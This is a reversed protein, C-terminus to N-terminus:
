KPHDLHQHLFDFTGKAHIEHGGSFFEIATRDIIGLSAYLHRVRAYEYAVWQDPAVGDNHGREVMFPRPAILGALEAYNFREGFDFESHEHEITFMFSYPDDISTHKWVQENFDGSCISLCYGDLVAPILMASKGGYSLGYFGIRKADVMPLSALWKLVQEHQRVMPAFFTMGLAFAKRQAARYSEEGIYLNQPAYVIFGRNALQAGFSHYYSTDKNPTCIDQPTGNRGHQAVVVAQKQNPKLGKPILLIGYTSVKPYVDLLVEYGTWKPTQYTRRTRANPPLEVSPLQGIVESWLIDRFPQTTEQWRQPSERNASKWFAKRRFRSQRAIKQTHEVLEDFGKKLRKRPDFQGRNDRMYQTPTPITGVIDLSKLFATLAEQSAPPGQGKDSVILQIKNAVNLQEYHQQARSYEEEVAALEPTWIKGYAATNRKSVPPPPDPPDPARCAEIVLYRPTILSAIDADGFENLLGYVNRYVPERHVNERPQFYGSVLSSKIRNDIAATYFAILGGEGYGAIGIPLKRNSSLSQFYDVAAMAKQVEYGILHRGMFFAQRYIFERHTQNLMRVSPNGSWSTQRDIIAPILVQCGSEALALAFTAGPPSNPSLGAMMEPTWDADPLAVVRARSETKPELLLGAANVGELVTWRVATIRVRKNEAVVAPSQLTGVLQLDHPALRPDVAGIRRRLSDRHKQISNHYAVPSSYDRNWQSSRTNASQGILGLFYQDVAKLNEMPLNDDRNLPQTNPLTLPQESRLTVPALYVILLMLISWPSIMLAPLTALYIWSFSLRRVSM